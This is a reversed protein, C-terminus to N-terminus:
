SSRAVQLCEEIVPSCERNELGSLGHKAKCELAHQEEEEVLELASSALLLYGCYGCQSTIVFVRNELMPARVFENEQQIHM